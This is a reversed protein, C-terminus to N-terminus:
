APARTHSKPDAAQHDSTRPQAGNAEPGHPRPLEVPPARRWWHGLALPSRGPMVAATRRQRGPPGSSAPTVLPTTGRARAHVPGLHANNMHLLAWGAAAFGLATGGWGILDLPRSGLLVSALHIPQSAALLVATGTPVAM